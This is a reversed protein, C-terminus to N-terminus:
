MTTGPIAICSTAPVTVYEQWSGEGEQLNFLVVVRDGQKWASGNAIAIVGCGEGGPVATFQGFM